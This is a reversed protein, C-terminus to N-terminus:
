QIKMKNALVEYIDLNTDNKENEEKLRKLVKDKLSLTDEKLKNKNKETMNRASWLLLDKITIERGFTKDNLTSLLEKVLDHEEKEERKFHIKYIKINDTVRKNKKPTSEKNDQSSNITLESM